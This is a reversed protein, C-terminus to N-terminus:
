QCFEEIDQKAKDIRKQREEDSLRVAKGNVMIRRYVQYIQLNKKAAECNKERAKASKESLRQVTKDTAKQGKDAAADSSASPPANTDAATDSPPPASPEDIIQYNGSEPPTQSYVTHGDKDVWKYTVAQAAGLPLLLALAIALLRFQNM